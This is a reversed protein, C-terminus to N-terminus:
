YFSASVFKFQHLSENLMAEVNGKNGFRPHLRYKHCLRLRVSVILEWNRAIFNKSVESRSNVRHQVDDHSTM